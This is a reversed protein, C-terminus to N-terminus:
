QLISCECGTSFIDNVINKDVYKQYYFIVKLEKIWQPIQFSFCRGLSTRNKSIFWEYKNMRIMEENEVPVDFGLTLRKYKGNRVEIKIKNIIESIEYTMSKYLEATNNHKPYDMNRMQSPSVGYKNKYAHDYDTCITFEPFEVESSSHINFNMGHVLNFAVELYFMCYVYRSVRM